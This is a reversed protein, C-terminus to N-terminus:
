SKSDFRKEIELEENLKDYLMFQSFFVFFWIGLFPLFILTFPAFIVFFGIFLLELVVVLLVKWLYKATFLIINSLTMKFPQSFLVLQPWYLNQFNLILVASFLLLATTAPTLSLADTYFVMYFLFSYVGAVLGLLAGPILSCSVNQRLGKKYNDWRMGTDDRLGRQVSDVLAAIFPGLIMGSVLCLPILLLISSSLISFTISSILPLAAVFTIMGLKVWHGAYFSLLQKYRNFGTMRQSEDYDEDRVFLGM